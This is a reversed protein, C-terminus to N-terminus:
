IESTFDELRGYAGNLYEIEDRLYWIAKRLDEAAKQRDTLGDESKHGCRLIYKVANGLNFNLHRCVDQPEIGCLDKLWKYHSPHNVREEM